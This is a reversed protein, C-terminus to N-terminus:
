RCTVAGAIRSCPALIRRWGTWHSEIEVTGIEGTLYHRFSLWVWQEPKKLSTQQNLVQIAVSLLSRSPEGVLLHVQEPMLVYGAVVFGYRARVAELM